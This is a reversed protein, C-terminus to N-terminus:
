RASGGNDTLLDLYKLGSGTLLLLIREDSRVDGRQLLAPLAAVLAAAEPAALIGTSRALLGLAEIIAGDSVAIATGGSDRITRLILYDGIAGPVRLGAAITQPAAIPEGFEAGTDFAQVIPACGEAQVAIMRPRRDDILGLDQLEDFAKWIGILGTGGGTPYCIVDPLSWDLQEAIEFGMTKKGELRYPEKLTSVDFWGHQDAAALAVRGADSIVGDVLELRAGVSTVEFQNAFPADRPMFVTAQLGAAAAYSALAGGANGATPIVFETRGLEKAKSVAASLGRAKFSGTPNLGEDKLLLDGFGLTNGLLSASFIPPWGEGLTVINADDLVPMLERYRWISTARGPLSDKTLTRAAVATDYRAVLVKGCAPCTRQPLAPDSEEGCYSCELTTLASPFPM